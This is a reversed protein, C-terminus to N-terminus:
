VEKGNGPKQSRNYLFRNGQKINRFTDLVDAIVGESLEPGDELRRLLIVGMDTHYIRRVELVEATLGDIWDAFGMVDQWTSGSLLAAYM